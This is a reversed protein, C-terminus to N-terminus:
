KLYRPISADKITTTGECLNGAPIADSLRQLLLQGTMSTTIITQRYHYPRWQTLPMRVHPPMIHNAKRVLEQPTTVPLATFHRCALVLLMYELSLRQHRRATRPVAANPAHVKVWHLKARWPM